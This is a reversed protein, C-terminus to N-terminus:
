KRIVFSKRNGSLIVENPTKLVVKDRNSMFVTDIAKYILKSGKAILIDLKGAKNPFAFVFGHDNDCCQNKHIREKGFFQDFLDEAKAMFGQENEYGMETLEEKSATTLHRQIEEAEGLMLFPESIEKEIPRGIAGKETEVITDLLLKGKGHFLYGKLQDDLKISIALSNEGIEIIGREIRWLTLVETVKLITSDLQYNQWIM